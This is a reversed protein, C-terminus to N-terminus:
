KCLKPHICGSLCTTDRSLVLFSAVYLPIKPGDRPERQGWGGGSVREPGSRGRGRESGSRGGNQGSGDGAGESQGPGDRAGESQGQGDGAGM